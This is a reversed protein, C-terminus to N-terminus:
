TTTGATLWPFEEGAFHERTLRTTARETGLLFSFPFFFLSKRGTQSAFHALCLFCFAFSSHAQVTGLLLRPHSRELAANVLHHLSPQLHMIQFALRGRGNEEEASSKASKEGVAASLFM